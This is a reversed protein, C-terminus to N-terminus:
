GLVSIQGVGTAKPQSACSVNATPSSFTMSSSKMLYGPQTNLSKKPRRVTSPAQIITAEDAITADRHTELYVKNVKIHQNIMGFSHELWKLDSMKQVDYMTAYIAVNFHQYRDAKDHLSTM